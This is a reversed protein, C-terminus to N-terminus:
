KVVSFNPEQSFVQEIAKIMEMMSASSDHAEFGDGVGNAVM